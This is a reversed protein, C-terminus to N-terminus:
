TALASQAAVLLALFALLWAFARSLAPGPLRAAFRRGGVTALVATLAFPAVVALDLHLTPTRAALAAACNAATVVLATGVAEAMSLALVVTLAPVILWGGGVGAFGTLLGVGFGAVFTRAPPRARRWALTGPVLSRASGFPAVPRAPCSIGALATDAATATAAQRHMVGAAIGMLVAIALMLVNESVGRNLESGVLAGAVGMAGFPLAVDWRVTGARGHGLGGAAAALGVIVLSGATADPVSQGLLYVLVPVTLVGAGGGLAGIIGGVPLGLALAALLNM